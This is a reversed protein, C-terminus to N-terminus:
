MKTTSLFIWWQGLNANGNNRFMYFRNSTVGELVVTLEHKNRPLSDRDLELLLTTAIGTIPQDM